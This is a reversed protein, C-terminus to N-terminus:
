ELVALPTTFQDRVLMCLHDSHVKGRRKELELRSLTMPNASYMITACPSSHPTSCSPLTLLRYAVFSAANSAATAAAERAIRSPCSTRSLTGSRDAPFWVASPAFDQDRAIIGAGSTFLSARLHRFSIITGLRREKRNFPWTARLTPAAHHQGGDFRAGGRTGM